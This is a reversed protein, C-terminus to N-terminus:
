NKKTKKKKSTFYIVGIALVVLVIGAVGIILSVYASTSPVEVVQSPTNTDPTPTSDNESGVYEYIVYTDSKLGAGSLTINNPKIYFTPYVLSGYGSTHNSLINNSSQVFINQNSISGVYDAMFSDPTILFYQLDSSLYNPNGMCASSLYEPVSDCASNTSAKVYDTVGILGVKGNWKYASEEKVSEALSTQTDSIPGVNFDHAVILSKVNDDLSEYWEDNLYTNLSAEEDPLDYKPGNVEQSMQTVHKGDTDFVTTKSGWVNCGSEGTYCCYDNSDSSSRSWLSDFDRELSVTSMVKLSGDSEVSIIRYVDDGITIYNNPNAGKFVYRGPVTPDAYLGDGSTVVEKKLQEAAMEAASVPPLFSFGLIMTILVAFGKKM